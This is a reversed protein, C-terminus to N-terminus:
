QHGFGGIVITPDEIRAIIKEANEYCQKAAKIVKKIQPRGLVDTIAYEIEESTITFHKSLQHSIYQRDRPTLSIGKVERRNLYLELKRAEKPRRKAFDMMYKSHLTDVVNGIVDGPADTLQNGWKELTKEPISEWDKPLGKLQTHLISIREESTLQGVIDVYRFRRYIADPIIEPKNTMSIMFVGNYSVIGDLVEQFVRELQDLNGNNGHDNRTFWADFEDFILAVPKSMRSDRYLELAHDFVRKLNNPSEHLYATLVSGGIPIYAGIIAPNAGVARGLETKGCGYPGILLLHNRMKEGRSTTKMLSPYKAALIVDDIHAKATSFSKGKVDDLKISPTAEREFYFESLRGGQKGVYFENDGKVDDRLRRDKESISITHLHDALETALEVIKMAQKEAKHEKLHSITSLGDVLLELVAEQAAMIEKEKRNEPQLSDPDPRIADFKMNEIQHLKARHFSIPRSLIPGLQTESIRDIHYGPSAFLGACIGKFLPIIREYLNVVQAYQKTIANMFHRSNIVAMYHNSHAFENMAEAVQRMLYRDPEHTITYKRGKKVRVDVYKPLVKSLGLVVDTLLINENIIQVREPKISHLLHKDPDEKQEFYAFLASQHEVDSESKGFATFRKELARYGLRAKKFMSDIGAEITPVVKGLQDLMISLFEPAAKMQELLFYEHDSQHAYTRKYLAELHDLSAMSKVIVTSSINLLSDITMAGIQKEDLELDQFSSSEDTRPVSSLSSVLKQRQVSTENLISHLSDLGAKYLKSHAHFAKARLMELKTENLGLEGMSLLENMANELLSRSVDTPDIEDHDNGSLKKDNVM